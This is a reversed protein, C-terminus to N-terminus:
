MVHIRSVVPKGGVNKLTFRVTKGVTVGNLVAASEVKFKMTMSPWKLAPIPGHAIVITGARADVAKVVGDGEVAQPVPAHDEGEHAVAPAAMSTTSILAALAVTVFRTKM